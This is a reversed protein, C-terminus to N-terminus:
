LGVDCIFANKTTWAGLNKCFSFAFYTFTAAPECIYAVNLHMMHKWVLSVLFPIGYSYDKGCIDLLMYVSMHKLWANKESIFAM